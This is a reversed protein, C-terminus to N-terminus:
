IRVKLRHALNAPTLISARADMKKKANILDGITSIKKGAETKVSYYITSEAM